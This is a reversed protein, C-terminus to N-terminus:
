DHSNNRETKYTIYGLLPQIIIVIINSIIISMDHLNLLIKIIDLIIIITCLGIITNIAIHYHKSKPKIIFLLALQIIILILSIGSLINYLNTM